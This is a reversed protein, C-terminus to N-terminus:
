FEASAGSDMSRYLAEVLKLTDVNDEVSSRLPGTGAVARFVQGITGMFADPFWRMTVPYPLWGDTPLVHSRLELTDPRGDPYDYLLGFTGRISGQDGDIRYLAYNDGGRNMHNSHVTATLNGDYLYTSITRTEGIPFQGSTRGAACFVTKPNGLFWRIMDHYHISHLMVELRTLDKAWPWLHWPTDLNVNIAFNTVKGIMGLEVMKYAAAIGEEFRLQQNVAAVIGNAKASAALERGTAVTTALPKQALIHKKAASVKLFIEPQAVAPVAIDVVKSAPDSILEELTAYVKPIGHRAAVEQAKGNDTDFIGVVSVGAKKYAPLHAGDVIGGAGVIAVPLKIKDDISLDCFQSVEKFLDIM